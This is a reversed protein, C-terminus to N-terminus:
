SEPHAVDGQYFPTCKSASNKVSKLLGSLPALASDLLSQAIASKPNSMSGNLTQKIDACGAKDLLAFTFDNFTKDTPNLQGEFALRYKDTAIATDKLLLAGNDMKSKLKFQPILTEGGSANAGSGLDFVNAALIGVPGTILFSGVDKWDSEKSDKFGKVLKNIDVGQLKGSDLGLEINGSLTKLFSQPDQLLGQADILGSLAMTGSPKVPSSPMFAHFEDLNVQSENIDLQIRSHGADSTVKGAVDLQSKGTDLQLRLDSILDNLLNVPQSLKGSTQVEGSLTMMGLNQLPFQPLLAAFDALALQSDAINLTLNADGKPNQLTGSLHLRTRETNLSLNDLRINNETATITTAVKGLNAGQAQLQAVDLKARIPSHDKLIIIESQEAIHVDELQLNLNNVIFQQQASIDQLNAKEISLKHLLVRKVPLTTAANDAEPEAQAPRTALWDDLAQMNIQLDPAILRVEDLIINKSIADMISADVVLTGIDGNVIPGNVRLQKITIKGPNFLSHEIDEFAISHSEVDNLYPTAEDKFWNPDWFLAALLLLLAPVVVVTSVIKKALTM